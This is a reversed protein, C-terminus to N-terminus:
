KGPLKSLTLSVEKRVEPDADHNLVEILAPLATKAAENMNGLARVVHLRVLASPDHLAEILGPVAAAAAPGMRGITRAARYRRAEKTHKLEDLLLPVSEPSSGGIKGIATIAGTKGAGGDRRALAVLEPVAAEAAEGMEGLTWTAFARVRPDEHKLGQILIPVSSPGPLGLSYVAQAAEFRVRASPHEIARAAVAARLATLHSPLKAVILASHSQIRRLALETEKESTVKATGALLTEAAPSPLPSSLSPRDSPPLGPGAIEPRNALWAAVQRHGSVSLHDYDLFSDAPAPLRGLEPLFDLITIGEQAAFAAIRRQVSADPATAEVQFRFPFVVVHFAAGDKVVESKLTRIEDFFLRFANQVRPTDAATFLEEVAGIERTSAGLARRVAASHRYLSLLFGPPRALNIQMEAIDNLCVALLVVDPKYNRAIREYALREQRTSWGPLGMNFVDVDHGSARLSAELLFPFAEDGEVGHGYTVSDGLVVIRRLGARTERPRTVDRLGDVNPEVMRPSPPYGESKEFTYFDGESFREKWDWLYEQRQVPPAEFLRALGEVLGGFLLTSTAALALNRTLGAIRTSLAPV